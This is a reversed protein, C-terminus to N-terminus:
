AAAQEAIAVIVLEVRPNKPDVGAREWTERWLQADDAYAIGTLADTLLKRYNGADRKRRDPFWVRAHLAVAGQLPLGTWALALLAAAQEKAKRYGPATILRVSRGIRAPMLRHNDHAMCSWPVVIAAGPESAPSM